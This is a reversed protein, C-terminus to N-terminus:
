RDHAGRGGDAEREAHAYNGQVEALSEFRILVAAAPIQTRTGDNLRRFLLGSIEDKAIEALIIAL